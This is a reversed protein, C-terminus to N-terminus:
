LIVILSHLCVGVLGGVLTGNVRIFQLDRGVARELRDSVTATDWRKVTDSVVSVIEEGYDAVMGVVARRVYRNISRRLEDDEQLTEGFTRLGEGVKGSFAEAGGDSLAAKMAEKLNGWVGGLFRGLEPNDLMDNKWSEVRDRTEPLYQLDFAVDKLAIMIKIRLPHEPDYAMDNLLRRLGDIIANAVRDDIGALRLVWQTREQVLGRILYENEDLIRAGWIVARDFIPQLRDEDLSRDLIRGALPAVELRRLNSNLGSRVLDSIADNDAADLLQGALRGFGRGRAARPPSSMWSAVAGAIDVGALRRAVIQPTLFNQQLFTAMAEALRDKKKPIIATHPIPLHLPHRFLAVVAFWDALGGVLAAEAFAEVFGVWMQDRPLAAHSLIFVAAMAVLLGTAVLRM